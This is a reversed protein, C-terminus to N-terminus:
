LERAEERRLPGQRDVSVEKFRTPRAVETLEWLKAYADLRREAVKL